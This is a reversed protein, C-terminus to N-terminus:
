YTGARDCENMMSRVAVRASALDGAVTNWTMRHGAGGREALDRARELLRFLDCDFEDALKDNPKM